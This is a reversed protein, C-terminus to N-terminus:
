RQEELSELLADRMVEVPASKGTWIEFALVGQYLLMGLGGCAKLGNEKAVKVLSTQTNYVIDFVALDKYLLKENIPLPDTKKMGVPSANVLLDADVVFPTWDKEYRVWATPCLVSYRNALDVASDQIKDVVTISKAGAKALTFFVARAAGGAGIIFVRKGKPDFGLDEKLSRLFGPGDTNYGSLFLETGPTGVNVTNVAGIFNAYDDIKNLFKMCSIKHPVTVNFGCIGRAVLAKISKQLDEPKVEFPEYVADIGLAKFAADHMAPSLTHGIPYGIVGYIKIDQASNM